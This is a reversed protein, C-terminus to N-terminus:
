QGLKSKVLAVASRIKELRDGAIEIIPRFIVTGDEAQGNIVMDGIRDGRQITDLSGRIITDSQRTDDEMPQAMDSSM